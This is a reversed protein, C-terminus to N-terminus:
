APFPVGLADEIQKTSHTGSREVGKAIILLLVGPPANRLEPFRNELGESVPVSFIMIQDHLSVGPKFVFTSTYHLWMDAVSAVAEDMIAIVADARSKKRFPWIM